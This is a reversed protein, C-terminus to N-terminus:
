KSRRRSKPEEETLIGWTTVIASTGGGSEDKTQRLPTGNLYYAVIPFEWDAVPVLRGKEFQPALATPSHVSQSLPSGELRM